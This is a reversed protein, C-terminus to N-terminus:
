IPAYVPVLIKITMDPLPIIGTTMGHEWTLLGNNLLLKTVAFAGASINNFDPIFPVRQTGYIKRNMQFMGTAGTCISWKESEITEWETEVTHTNLRLNLAPTNSLEGM